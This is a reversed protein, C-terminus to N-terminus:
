SRAPLPGTRGLFADILARTRARYLPDRRHSPFFANRAIAKVVSIGLEGAVRARAPWRNHKLALRYTNRCGYYLIHASPLLSTSTSVEHHAVARAVLRSEVGIRSAHVSWDVDELYLFYSEDLPGLRRYTQATVFLACGTAWDVTRDRVHAEAPDGQGIHRNEMSPKRLEGGAWWVRAPDNAYVIKPALIAQPHDGAAALLSAVAGPELTADNNLFLLHSAGLSLARRAGANCGAAYGGNRRTRIIEVSPVAARVAIAPDDRSANDVLIPLVDADISALVSLLCRISAETQEFNVVIAAVRAGM